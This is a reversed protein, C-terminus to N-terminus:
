SLSDKWADKRKNKLTCAITKIAIPLGCCKSIIDDGIKNHLELDSTEVFQWFLNQAELKSLLGVNFVSNAEAGMNTCVHADRTTLLVKIDVGQNPFPTLGIDNLDVMEWVDDLIILFKTKGGHSNNKFWERM